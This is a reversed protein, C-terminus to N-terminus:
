MISNRNKNATTYNVQNRYNDGSSKWTYLRRPHLWFWINAIMQNKEACWDTWLDGRENVNGIVFPGFTDRDKGRGIKANMDGMVMIMGHAECRQKAKNQNDLFEDIEKESSEAISVYVQIIYINIPNGKLKVLLM